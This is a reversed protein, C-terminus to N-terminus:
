RLEYLDEIVENVCTLVRDTRLNHKKYYDNSFIDVKLSGYLEKNIKLLDLYMNIVDIDIGKLNSIYQFDVLLSSINILEDELM